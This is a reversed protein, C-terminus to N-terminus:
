KKRTIKNVWDVLNEQVPLSPTSAIAVPKTQAKTEVLNKLENLEARLKVLEELRADVEEKLKVLENVEERLSYTTAPNNVIDVSKVEKIKTVKQGSMEADVVQSIGIKKTNQSFDYWISEALHHHPNLTLTAYLGDEKMIPNNIHGVREIYKRNKSSETHDLYVPEGEYLDMAEQLVHIPYERKNKSTLGCIKVKDLIMKQTKDM